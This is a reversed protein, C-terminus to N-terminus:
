RLRWVQAPENIHRELSARLRDIVRWLEQLEAELREMRMALDTYYVAEVGTDCQM